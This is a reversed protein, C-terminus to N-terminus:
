HITLRKARYLVTKECELCSRESVAIPDGYSLQYPAQSSVVTTTTSEANFHSFRRDVREQLIQLNEAFTISNAVAVRQSGPFCVFLAPGKKMISMRLTCVCAKVFTMKIKIPHM